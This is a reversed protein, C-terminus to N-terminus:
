VVRLPCFDSVRVSYHITRLSRHCEWEDDRLFFSTTDKNHVITNQVNSPLKSSPLLM